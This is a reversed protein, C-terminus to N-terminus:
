LCTYLMDLIDNATMEELAAADPTTAEATNDDSAGAHVTGNDTAITADAAMQNTVAAVTSDGYGTSRAADVSTAGHDDEDHSVTFGDLEPKKAIAAGVVAEAMGPALTSSGAPAMGLPMSAITAAAAARAAVDTDSSRNRAFRRSAPSPSSLPSEPHPERYRWRARALPSSRPSNALSGTPSDIGSIHGDTDISTSSSNGEREEDLLSTANPTVPIGDWSTPEHGTHKCHRKLTAQSRLHLGCSCVFMRGCAKLHMTLDERVTFSKKNCRTCMFQKEGQYHRRLFHKKAQYKTAFVRPCVNCKVPEDWRPPAAPDAAPSAPSCIAGMPSSATEVGGSLPRATVRVLPSNGATHGSGFAAAGGGMASVAGLSAAAAAAAASPSDAFLPSDASANKLFAAPLASFLGAQNMLMSPNPQQGSSATFPSVATLQQLHAATLAAAAAAAIESADQEQAQQAQQAQQTQQARQAQQAQQMQQAQHQLHQHLLHQQTQQQQQRIALQLQEMAFAHAMQDAASGAYLQDAASAAYPNEGTATPFM